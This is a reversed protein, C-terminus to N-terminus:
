YWDKRMQLAHDTLEQNARDITVKQLSMWRLEGLLNMAHNFYNESKELEGKDLCEMSLYFYKRIEARFTLATSKDEKKFHDTFPM